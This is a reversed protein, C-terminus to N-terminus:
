KYFMLQKTEHTCLGMDNLYRELAIEESLHAGEFHVILSMLTNRNPYNIPPLQKDIIQHQKNWNTVYKHVYAVISHREIINNYVLQPIIVIEWHQHFTTMKQQIDQNMQQAVEQLEELEPKELNTLLIEQQKMVYSYTTERSWKSNKSVQSLSGLTGKYGYGSLTKRMRDHPKDSYLLFHVHPKCPLGAKTKEEYCVIFDNESSGYAKFFDSLHKKVTQKDKIDLRGSFLEM